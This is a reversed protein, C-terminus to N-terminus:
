ASTEKVEQEADALWQALAPLALMTDAYAQEVPALPVAYSRFRLVVPAYMADAISFGGCLFAGTVSFRKRAERWIATIREIDGATQANPQVQTRLTCNMPMQQRLSAFGSHMEASISRAFAREDLDNPWGRDDLFVENAYENIALSDWIVRAGHHLAPVRASPSFKRITARFQDTDLLLKTEEFPVGFHRLVLWPRLSWSSLNKNGIILVPKDTM